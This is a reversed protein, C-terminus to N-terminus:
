PTEPESNDWVRRVYDEIPFKRRLGRANMYRVKGFVPREPWGRDHLGFCWAVNAFANPDRGDLFYRNNLALLTAFATQPDATWELVKKGWYMRMYNPMFGRTRLDTMAANWYPDATEAAELTERSYCPDRPDDAHEALTRRAWDPLGTYADYDPRYWVHNCALERRVILQELFAERDEAPADAGQVARAVERVGIQGFHLYPSLHSTAEAVPDSSRRAYGPLRERLFRDLRHHAERCGGQFASVPAVSPDLPLDRLITEGDEPNFDGRLGLPRASVNPEEAPPEALFEERRRAIRPRLTRAATEAKPSAIEVPVVVETEVEVVPCPARDAVERRWQRQHRLYGRDCVLLAAGEALRLAAQPPADHSPLFAIGRRRLHAGVEALGQVMFAYHRLNAEPYDATLGFAVVVPLCLENARHVALDLAPNDSARQAQQMWYLVYRGPRPPGPRLDQIRDPAVM